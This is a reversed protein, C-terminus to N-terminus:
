DAARDVFEGVHTLYRPIDEIAAQLADFIKSHDLENYEHVIRNRLGACSAIRSAFDPDLAGIGALRTFSAHYDPPPAEGRETLLHYNVDIMRGIIRELYREVLVQDVSNSLYSTRDRTAITHLAQLDRVILLSKRTVLERDIM